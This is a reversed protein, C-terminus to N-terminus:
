KSRTQLLTIARIIIYYINNYYCPTIPSNWINSYLIITNLAFVYILPRCLPASKLHTFQARLSPLSVFDRPCLFYPTISRTHLINYKLFNYTNNYSVKNTISQCANRASFWVINNNKWPDPIIYHPIYQYEILRSKWVIIYYGLRLYNSAIIISNRM